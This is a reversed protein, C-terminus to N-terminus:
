NGQKDSKLLQMLEPTVAIRGPAPAVVPKGQSARAACVDLLVQRLTVGTTFPHRSHKLAASSALLYDSTALKVVEEPDIASGDSWTILLTPHEPTGGTAVKVGSVPEVVRHLLGEKVVAVVEAGTLEAVVLENEFPMVEVIDGVKVAGPRINARIGGSNTYGFKVPVGVLKEARERMADAIWYGLENEHSSTGKVLGAPCQAIVLGYTAKIQAKLPDIVKTLAPDEAYAETVAISSPQLGPATQAGLALGLALILASRFTM